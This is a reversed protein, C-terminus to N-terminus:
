HCNACQDSLPYAARIEDEVQQRDRALQERELRLEEAKRSVESKIALQDEFRKRTEPLLPAALPETLRVITGGDMSGTSRLGPQRVVNVNITSNACM